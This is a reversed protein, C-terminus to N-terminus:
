FSSGPEELFALEAISSDRALIENRHPFRGWRAVIDRHQEAFRLNAEIRDRSPGSQEDRFATFLVVCREQRRLDESHMFPLYLFSREDGRLARDFGLSISEEAVRLALPDAAFMKPTDRFLNRSLQDLVIVYALRGRASDLWRERAGGLIADHLDAFRRRLEEDFAPDKKWWRQAHAPAAHGDEDLTGFWFSLVQEIGAEPPLQLPEGWPGGASFVFDRQPRRERRALERTRLEGSLSGPDGPYGLAFATLPEFDDPIGFTERAKDPDFGAMQHVVLGRETAQLSLLAVAQGVDHFAHRNPRGSRAFGWQAVAVVLVAADEAWVRNGPALCALAKGFSEEDARQAVLFRWPQENMSSAAWRAAEFVARLADPPVPREAFARPSWRRLILDHVPHEVAARKDM